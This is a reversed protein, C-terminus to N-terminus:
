GFVKQHEDREGNRASRLSILRITAGRLTYIVTAYDTDILGIAIRRAEEGVTKAPRDLHPGQFLLVADVFDFGHKQINKNRKEEHWEFEM